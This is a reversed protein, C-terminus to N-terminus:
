RHYQGRQQVLRQGYVTAQIGFASNIINFINVPSSQNTEVIDWPGPLIKILEQAYASLRLELSISADRPIELPVPFKYRNECFTEGQTSASFSFSWAQNTPITDALGLSTGSIIPGYGCPVTFATQKVREDQNVKFVVSVHRPLDVEWIRSVNHTAKAVGGQLTQILLPSPAFFTLGLSYVRMGYPMSDRKDQNNYALGVNRNRRNFFYQSAQLGFAAFTSFWGDPIPLINNEWFSSILITDYLPWSEKVNMPARQEDQVAISQGEM